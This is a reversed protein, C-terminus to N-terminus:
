LVARNQSVARFGTDKPFALLATAYVRGARHLTTRPREPGRVQATSIPQGRGAKTGAAIATPQVVPGLDLESTPEHETPASITRQPRPLYRQRSSLPREGHAHPQPASGHPPQDNGGRVAARYRARTLPGKISRLTKARASASSGYRSAAITRHRSKQRVCRHLRAWRAFERRRPSTRQSRSQSVGIGRASRLRSLEHNWIL